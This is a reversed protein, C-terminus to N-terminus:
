RWRHLAESIKRDLKKFGLGEYILAESITIVKSTGGSVIGIRDEEGAKESPIFTFQLDGEKFLFAQRMGKTKMREKLGEVTHSIRKLDGKNPSKLREATQQRELRGPSAPEIGRIPIIVQPAPRPALSPEIRRRVPSAKTPIHAPLLSQRAVVPPKQANAKAELDKKAEETIGWVVEAQLVGKEVLSDLAHELDENNFNFYPPIEGQKKLLDVASGIETKTFKGAKRFAKLVGKENGSLRDSIRETM